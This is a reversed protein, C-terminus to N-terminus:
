ANANLRNVESLSAAGFRMRWHIFSWYTFVLLADTALSAWAAGLWGHAPILWLNLGFNFGAVVLQFITRYRQFGAATLISGLIVHASRLLPLLVLWRLALISEAFSHGLVFPLVPAAVFLSTMILLGILMSRKLLAKGYHVLELFRCDGIKFFRPMAAMDIASIPMTAVNVVRYAVTYIGNAAFMGYHSLMTKDFDNYISSASGALSFLSGETARRSFLRLSFRPLGFQQIVFSVVLACLILSVGLNALAWQRATTYGYLAWFALAVGLRMLNNAGSILAMCRPMEYTQFIQALAYTTASCFCESIAIPVVVSRSGAHLIYPAIWGMGGALATAVIATSVLINGFYLSHLKRNASVYRMFLTGSGLSGYPAAIMVFATCGALVGYERVGLLRSLVVFYAALLLANLGQGLAM